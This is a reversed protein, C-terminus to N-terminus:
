KELVVLYNLNNFDVYPKVYVIEEVGKTETKVVRGIKIDAGIDQLGSTVVETDLEINKLHDINHILFCETTHDYEDLLGYNEGIKVSVKVDGTLLKVKATFKNADEVIGVLGDENLVANGKSVMDETSITLFNYFEYINRLAIKALIRNEGEYISLNALSKEYEAMTQKLQENERKLTELEVMEKNDERFITMLNSTGIVIANHLAIFLFLILIINVIPKPRNMSLDERKM